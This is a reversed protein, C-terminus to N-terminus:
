ARQEGASTRFVIAFDLVFFLLRNKIIRYETIGAAHLLRQVDQFSLLRMYDGTAWTKEISRLFYDFVKKPLFHLLSIHTHM